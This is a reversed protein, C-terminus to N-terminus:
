VRLGAAPSEGLLQVERPGRGSTSTTGTSGIEIIGTSVDTSGDTYDSIAINGSRAMLPGYRLHVHELM